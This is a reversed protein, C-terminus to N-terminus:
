TKAPVWWNLLFWFWVWWGLLMVGIYIWTQPLWLAALKRPSRALNGRFIELQHEAVRTDQYQLTLFVTSLVFLGLLAWGYAERASYRALVTYNIKIWPIWPTIGMVGFLWVSRYFTRWWREHRYKYGDWFHNAWGLDLDRNGVSNEPANPTSAPVDM